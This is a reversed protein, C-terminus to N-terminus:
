ATIGNLGPLEIMDFDHIATQSANYADFYFLPKLFAAGVPAPSPDYSHLRPMTNPQNPSTTFGGLQSTVELFRVEMIDPQGTGPANTVLLRWYRHSGSASYDWDISYIGSLLSSPTVSTLNPRFTVDTWTSNNDSYQVKFTAANGTAAFYIFLRCFKKTVGAGLDIAMNSNAAVSNLDFAKSFWNDDSVNAATFNAFGNNTLVGAAFSYWAGNWGRFFGVQDGINDGINFQGPAVLASYMTFPVICQVATLTSAVTGAPDLINGATDYFVAGVFAQATIGGLRERVRRLRARLSYLATRDFPILNAYLWANDGDFRCVNGGLLADPYSLVTKSGLHAGTYVDTWRAPSGVFTAFQEVGNRPQPRSGPLVTLSAQVWDSAIGLTTITRMQVDWSEGYHVPSVYFVVDDFSAYGYKDYSAENSPRAQVEYRAVYASPDATWQVKIRYIPDSNANAIVDSLTATLTLGSPGAPKATADPLSTSPLSPGLALENYTYKSSTYEMLALVPQMQPSLTVAEVWFLKAVWGPSTMTLAIVDGVQAQFGVPGTTLMVSLGTRTERVVVQAIREAQYPSTTLPLEIDIFSDYFNDQQLYANPTLPRPWDRQAPQYNNVADIYVVRARNVKERAGPAVYQVAVVDSDDLTLSATQGGRRVSM